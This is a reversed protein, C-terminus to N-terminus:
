EILYKSSCTNVAILSGVSLIVVESAVVVSSGMILPLLNESTVVMSSTALLIALHSSKTQIGAALPVFSHM